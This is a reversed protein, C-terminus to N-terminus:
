CNVIPTHTYITYMFIGSVMPTKENEEYLWCRSVHLHYETHVHKYIFMLIRFGFLRLGSNMINGAYVINIRAGTM